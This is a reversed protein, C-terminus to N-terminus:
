SELHNLESILVLRYYELAKYREKMFSYGICETDTNEMNAIMGRLTNEVLRIESNLYDPDNM